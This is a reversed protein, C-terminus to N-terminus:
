QRREMICVIEGGIDAFQRLQWHAMLLPLWQDAGQVILHANRGDSLVKKAPRTAITLFAAKLTNKAMHALVNGLLEPEIHELVDCSVLLDAPQPDAALEPVCPDYSQVPKGPFMREVWKNKGSGYDLFTRAGCAQAVEKIHEAFRPATVGFNTTAHLHENQARYADTILEAM